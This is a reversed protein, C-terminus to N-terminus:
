PNALCSPQHNPLHGLTSACFLPVVRSGCAVTDVRVFERVPGKKTRRRAIMAASVPRCMPTFTPDQCGEPFSLTM